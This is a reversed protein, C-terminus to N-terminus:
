SFPDQLFFSYCCCLVKALEIQYFLKRFKYHFAYTCCSRQHYMKEKNIKWGLDLCYTFLPFLTMPYYIYIFGYFMQKKLLKFGM